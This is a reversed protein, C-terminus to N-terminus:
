GGSAPQMLLFMDRRDATGGSIGVASFSLAVAAANLDGSTLNTKYWGLGVETFAGSQLAGFSTGNRNIQGSVIGSVFDTFHDASSVMKFMFGSIAEGKRARIQSLAGSVELNSLPLVLAGNWQIDGTGIPPDTQAENAGLQERAVVSYIGAPIATPFNGKYYGTVLEETLAIGYDPFNGSVPNEFYGSTASWIYGSTQNRINAYVTRGIRGYAVQIENSM